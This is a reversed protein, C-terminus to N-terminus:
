EKCDDLTHLTEPM